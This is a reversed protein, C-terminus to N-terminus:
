GEKDARSAAGRLRARNQPLTDQVVLGSVSGPVRARRGAVNQESGQGTSCVDVSGYAM